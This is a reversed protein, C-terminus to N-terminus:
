AEPNLRNAAAGAAAQGPRQRPTIISNIIGSRDGAAAMKLLQAADLKELGNSQEDIASKLAAAAEIITDAQAALETTKM